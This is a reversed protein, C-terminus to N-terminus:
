VLVVIVFARIADEYGLPTPLVATAGSTTLDRGVTAYHATLLGIAQLLSPPITLFGAAIRVIWRQAVAPPTILTILLCDNGIVVSYASPDLVQVVGQDDLYSITSVSRLPTSQPPLDRWAIAAPLMDFFLDREQDPVALGTDQEVQQRAAEIFGLMLDDRPDGPVWDLGARLKAEDLTLPEKTIPVALLSRVSPRPPPYGYYDTWM